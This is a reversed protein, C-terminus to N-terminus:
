SWISIVEYLPLGDTFNELLQKKIEFIQPDTTTRHFFHIEKAFYDFFSTNRLLVPIGRVLLVSGTTYILFRAFRNEPLINHLWSCVKKVDEFIDSIDYDDFLSITTFATLGSLVVSSM